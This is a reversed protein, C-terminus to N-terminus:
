ASLRKHKTDSIGLTVNLCKIGLIMLSFTTISPTAASGEGEVLPEKTDGPLVLPPPIETGNVEQKDPKSNATHCSVIKTKM